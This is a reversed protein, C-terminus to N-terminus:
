APCSSSSPPSLITYIYRPFTCWDHSNPNKIQQLLPRDLMKQRTGSPEGPSVAIKQPDHCRSVDANHSVYNSMVMFHHHWPAYLAVSHECCCQEENKKKKEAKYTSPKWFMTGFRTLCKRRGTPLFLISDKGHFFLMNWVCVCRCTLHSLNSLFSLAHFACILNRPANEYQIMSVSRLNIILRMCKGATSQVPQFYLACVSRASVFFFAYCLCHQPFGWRTSTLAICSFSATDKVHISTWPLNRGKRVQATNPKPCDM